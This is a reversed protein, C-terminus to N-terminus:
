KTERDPNKPDPPNINPNVMGDANRDSAPPPEGTDVVSDQFPSFPEDKDVAEGGSTIPGKRKGEM